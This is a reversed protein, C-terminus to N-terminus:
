WRNDDLLRMAGGITRIRRAADDSLSLDFADEFEMVLEVGGLSDVGLDAFATSSVLNEITVDLQSSVLEFLQWHREDM